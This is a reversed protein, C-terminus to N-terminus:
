SALSTRALRFGTSADRDDGRLRTASRVIRPINFWSGGRVARLLTKESKIRPNQSPIPDSLSDHWDDAMWEWVNGLMDYLGWPNPAFSGVPATFAFGDDHRFFKQPDPKM